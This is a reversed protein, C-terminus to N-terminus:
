AEMEEHTWGVDALGRTVDPLSALGAALSADLFRSLEARTEADVTRRVAWLAYVFPLGTWDLWDAGLDRTATFGEPRRNRMRMAAWSARSCTASRSRRRAGCATSRRPMPM